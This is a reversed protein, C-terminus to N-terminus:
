GIHPKLRSEGAEECRRLARVRDVPVGGLGSGYVYGTVAPVPVRARTHTHTHTRTRTHTHTHTDRHTHTHTAHPVQTRSLSRTDIIQTADMWLRHSRPPVSQVDSGVPTVFGRVCRMATCGIHRRVYQRQAAAGTSLQASRSTM